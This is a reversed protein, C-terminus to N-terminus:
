RLRQEGAAALAAALPRRVLRCQEAVQRWAARARDRDPEAEALMAAAVNRVVADGLGLRDAGLGPAPPPHKGGLRALLANYTTEDDTAVTAMLGLWQADRDTAQGAAAALRGLLAAREAGDLDGDRLEAAMAAPETPGLRTTAGWTLAGAVVVLFLSLAPTFVRSPTTPQPALAADAPSPPM